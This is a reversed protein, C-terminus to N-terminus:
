ACVGLAKEAFELAQNYHGTQSLFFGSKVLVDSIALIDQGGALKQNRLAEKYAKLSKKYYGLKENLEAIQILIHSINLRCKLGLEESNSIGHVDKQLFLLIKRMKLITEYCKKWVM